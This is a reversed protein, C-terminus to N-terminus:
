AVSVVVKGRAHGEGLYALAGPVERLEYRRDIVPAVTRAAMLEAFLPLDDRNLKAVFPKTERGGRLSALRMGVMHGLPGVWRNTKPGSVLVLRGDEKLVRKCESWSRNGAIDLMVEHEGASRTFDEETYDIVRDAGLERAADVNRTSCVGTVEAGLWKALQVAWTGVGGSAGNVLVREGPQLRGQDRLGQLATLGAIGVTAAQEFSVNAPKGAVAGSERPTVYEGFAGSRGGFVEDGPEFRTVAAGVAEVTGAYDVGLRGDKPGRLGAQMRVMYPIGTLMHWDFPNVSAAHVRVLLEDDAPVPKEVERLELVEPPGYREYVLAQM